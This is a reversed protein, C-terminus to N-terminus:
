EHDMEAESSQVSDGRSAGRRQHWNEAFLDFFADQPPHEAVFDENLTVGLGPGNPLPFCGDAPDVEVMGTVSEKVWADAFDNFHEQIKFNTTSAAVHLAAATGVPGCVNHPAMLMYYADAWAALKKTAMMGGYHTIDAQVIDAAQLEFLERYEHPTHLREGTAVPIGLPAVAQAVKHLARLNEPPVPEEIWGPRFPALANTIAIATVPNFRGHMEIFIETDPGVADRVAEVLEVSRRREARSLEYFGAGFPDLKLAQYGREVVSRAATRFDDAKREVTYWGNAYAPIRERVTGGLLQYVPVGLAQGMIDWCAVEILAIASTMIESARAFDRRFMRHVLDEIKFPDSGLIHNRSAERLYGLLSDTHNVMRAEGVGRLGEDTEVVVFTLDRWPTGLVMPRVASIKM